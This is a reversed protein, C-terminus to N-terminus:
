QIPASGEAPPLVESPVIESSGTLLAAFICLIFLIAALYWTLKEIFDASRAAGFMQNASQGGFTSDVGGGKPNQILVVGILLLCDLAILITVLTLM